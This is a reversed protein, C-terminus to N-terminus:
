FHKGKNNKADEENVELTTETNKSIEEVINRENSIENIEKAKKM